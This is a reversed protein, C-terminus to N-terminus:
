DTVTRKVPQAVTVLSPPPAAQSQAKEDCGALALAFLMGIPAGGYRALRRFSGRDFRTAPALYETEDTSM